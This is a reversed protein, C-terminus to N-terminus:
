LPTGEITGQLHQRCFAVTEAMKRRTASPNEFALADPHLEVSVTGGFDMKVLEQLVRGLETGRRPTFRHERKNKYNSLHIHAVREGAMRLPEIPDINFTGWHTTDLTLHDHISSWAQPTNWHAFDVSRGSFNV